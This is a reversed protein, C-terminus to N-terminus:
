ALGLVTRASAAILEKLASRQDDRIFSIISPGDPTQVDTGAAKARTLEDLPRVARNSRLVAVGLNLVDLEGEATRILPVSFAYNWGDPGDVNSSDMNGRFAADAYKPSHPQIEQLHDFSWPYWHSYASTGILRLTFPPFLDGPRSRARLWLFLSFQEKQVFERSLGHLGLERDSKSEALERLFRQPGHPSELQERLADSFRRGAEGVPYHGGRTTGFAAPKQFATGRDEVPPSPERRVLVVHEPRGLEPPM